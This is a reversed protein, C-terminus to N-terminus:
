TVLVWELMSRRVTLLKTELNFLYRVTLMATFCAEAIHQIPLSRVMCYNAAKTAEYDQKPLKVILLAVVPNRSFYTSM